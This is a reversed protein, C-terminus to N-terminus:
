LNVEKFDKYHDLSIYKLIIVDKTEDYYFILRILGMRSKCLNFSYYNNLQYKLREMGYMTSIPNLLLSRFDKVSEIHKIIIELREKENNYKKLKKLSKNYIESEKVYVFGGKFM